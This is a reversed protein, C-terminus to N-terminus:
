MTLEIDAFLCDIMFVVANNKNVEISYNILGLDELHRIYKKPDTNEGFVGKIVAEHITVTRKGTSLFLASLMGFLAFERTKNFGDFLNKHVSTNIQLKTYNDM